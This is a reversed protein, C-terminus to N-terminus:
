ILKIKWKNKCNLCEGRVKGSNHQTHYIGDSFSITTTFDQARHIIIDKSGCVPCVRKDIGRKVENVREDIMRKATVKDVGARKQVKAVNAWTFRADKWFIEDAIRDVESRTDAPKNFESAPCGCNPCSVAKDSILKGCEPCNILAM